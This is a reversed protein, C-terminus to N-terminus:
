VEVRTRSAVPRMNVLMGVAFSGTTMSKVLSSSAVSSELAEPFALFGLLKVVDQALIVDLPETAFFPVGSTAQREVGCGPLSLCV